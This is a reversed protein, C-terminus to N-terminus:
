KWYIQRMINLKSTVIKAVKDTESMIQISINILNRIMQTHLLEQMEFRHIIIMIPIQLHIAVHM